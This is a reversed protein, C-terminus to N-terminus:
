FLKKLLRDIRGVLKAPEDLANLYGRYSLIDPYQFEKNSGDKLAKEFYIINGDLFQCVHFTSNKEVRKCYRPCQYGLDFYELEEDVAFGAMENLRPMIDMPKSSAKVYLRGVYRFNGLSPHYYFFFLMLDDKTRDFLPIPRFDQGTEWELFLIARGLTTFKEVM